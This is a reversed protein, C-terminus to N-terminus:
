RVELDQRIAIQVQEADLGIAEALTNEIKQVSIESKLGPSSEVFDALGRICDYSHTTAFVQVNSQRATNVVLKWMEEMVSFHLGTDIEDILLYGDGTRVLSLSLAFLRRMGDGLSGLPIRRSSRGFGVLVGGSTRRYADGTLFHISDLDSALLRMANIVEPERGEALVKDWMDRMSDLQLSDSTLFEMPPVEPVHGPASSPSRVSRSFYLLGGDAVPSVHFWDPVNSTIRFAQTPEPDLDDAFFSTQRTGELGRLGLVREVEPLSLIEILLMGIGDNSSIRFTAGPKLQRGFFLHSVDPLMEQGHPSSQKTGRSPGIEGRRHASRLLVAPNGKSILFDIAELITTKGCNNKGVLLNVRKLDSLGFSEFGRYGQLDLTRIM